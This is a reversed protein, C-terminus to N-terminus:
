NTTLRFIESYEMPDSPIAYLVRATRASWFGLAFRFVFEEFSTIGKTGCSIDRV